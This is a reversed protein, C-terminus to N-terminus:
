YKPHYSFMSMTGHCCLLFALIPLIGITLLGVTLVGAFAEWQKKCGYYILMPVVYLLQGLSLVYLALSLLWPIIYVLEGLSNNNGAHDISSNIIYLVTLIVVPIFVLALHGTCVYIVGDKFGPIKGTKKLPLNGANFFENKIDDEETM